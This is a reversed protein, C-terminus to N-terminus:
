DVPPREGERRVREAEARVEALAGAIGEESARRDLYPRDLDPHVALMTVCWEKAETDKWHVAANLRDVLLDELGIVRIPGDETQVRVVRAPDGALPPAPFDVVVDVDRHVWAAGTREFGLGELVQRLVEAGAETLLDVDRSLYAGGTYFSVASGGVVIPEGYERLLGSLVAAVRLQVELPNRVERLAGLRNRAEALREPSM